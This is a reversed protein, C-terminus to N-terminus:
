KRMIEKFREDIIGVFGPLSQTVMFDRINELLNEGRFFFVTGDQVELM